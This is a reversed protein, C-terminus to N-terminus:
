QKRRRFLAMGGMALLGITAPEPITVASESSGDPLAIIHIGIRLLGTNLEDLVDEFTGGNINFSIQVWEGPPKIGNHPRSAESAFSLQDTTEFSPALTNGGPMNGPTAPQTFFTGPGSIIEVLELLLNTDFYIRSISSEILSQNYFTFDVHGAGGDSVEAYTIIDGSDYYDGNDTLIEFPYIYAAHAMNTSILM